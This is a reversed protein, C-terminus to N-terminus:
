GPTPVERWGPQALTLPPSAPARWCCLLLACSVCLFRVIERHWNQVAWMM